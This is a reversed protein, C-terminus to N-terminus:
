AYARNLWGQLFAENKKNQVALVRYFGAAESRVATILMSPDANAECQLTHSGTIGDDETFYRVCRLARQLIKVAQKLGANVSLDFIKEAIAFHTYEGFRGPLWFDRHYLFKARELTMNKIDENPYSAKCIGYNTEGGPDSPHNVYGGENKLVSAVASEFREAGKQAERVAQNTMIDKMFQEM